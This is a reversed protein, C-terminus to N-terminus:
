AASDKAARFLLKKGLRAVSVWAVRPHIRLAADRM